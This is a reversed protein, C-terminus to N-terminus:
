AKVSCPAIMAALRVLESCAMWTLTRTTRAKTRKRCNRIEWLTLTISNPVKVTFLFDDPVSALYSQVVDPKPLVVSEDFLSWFWQDIEVTDYHRAYEALYDIGKAASYVLGAWSEFKWSCTGVRVPSM